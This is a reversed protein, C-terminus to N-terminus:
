DGERSIVNFKHYDAVVMECLKGDRKMVLVLEVYGGRNVVHKAKSKYLDVVIGLADEGQNDKFTICDGKKM